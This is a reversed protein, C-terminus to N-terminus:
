KQLFFLPVNTNPELVFCGPYLVTVVGTFTYLWYGVVAVLFLVIFRLCTYWSWTGPPLCTKTLLFDFGFASFIPKWRGARSPSPSRLGKFLLWGAHNQVGLACAVSGGAQAWGRAPTYRRRAEQTGRLRFRSFISAATPSSSAFRSLFHMTYM